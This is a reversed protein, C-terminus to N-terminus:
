GLKYQLCLKEILDIIFIKTNFGPIDALESDTKTVEELNLFHSQVIPNDHLFKLDNKETLMNEYENQVNVYDWYVRELRQLEVNIEDKKLNEFDENRTICITVQAALIQLITNSTSVTELTVKKVNEELANLYMKGKKDIKLLDEINIEITSLNCGITEKIEAVVNAVDSFPHSKHTTTVCTCCILQKCEDCFFLLHEKHIDCDISVNFVSRDIRSYLTVNHRRTDPIKDHKEKCANCLGHTCTHCFYAASEIKDTECHDCRTSPVLAM